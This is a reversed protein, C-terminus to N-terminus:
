GSPRLFLCLTIAVLNLGAAVGYALAFDGSLDALVGAGAPGLVQGLAFTLTLIAFGAAAKEAGLYDDATAVISPLGWASLGFLLISIYLGGVGTGAAVLAYAVAQFALASLMGLRHGFRDSLNSFLTGSFISLGGVGAWLLGATAATIGLQDVM